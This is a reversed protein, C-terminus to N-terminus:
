APQEAASAQFEAALMGCAAHKQQGGSYRRVIPARLVQLQDLFSRLEAPTARRFGGERTENVDILNIRIPLDGFRRHLERVEEADHNVGGLLVWALTMRGKMVEAYMRIAAELEDLSSRGAVPLLSKRKEAVVSTLSVILKYPHGERAFRRIQAVLGVTSITINRGDVRGGCPHSLIEATRIVRDYNHFPEGQGMFVVGTVRGAGERHADDRVIKFASFMEWPELNRTLGLRGTACFACEMACGVQSSLCVTFAGPKHLPIRVAETLAGDPSRFLYKVFNDFPDTVREVVELPERSMTTDLFERRAKAIPQRSRKENPDSLVEALFRRAEDLRLAVGAELAHEVLREPTFGFLHPQSPSMRGSM